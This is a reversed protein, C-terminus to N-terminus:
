QDEIVAHIRFQQNHQDPSNKLVEEVPLSAEIKDESEKRPSKLNDTYFQINETLPNFLPEVGETKVENLTEIYSIIDKFNKEYDAIENPELELRALQGVHKVLDANINIKKM